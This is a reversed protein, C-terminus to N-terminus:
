WTAKVSGDWKGTPGKYPIGRKINHKLKRYTIAHTPCYNYCRLCLICNGCTLVEGNKEYINGSPCNSYCFGCNTCKEKDIGMDNRLKSFGKRFPVRQIKGAFISLSNFGRLSKDVRLISDAFKQSKRKAAEFTQGLKDADNTFPLPILSVCVNNPMNFHESWKIDFGKSALFQAGAHSGDGSWKWQTCYVFTPKSTIAALDILFEKMNQPLDSGYIPYGFGIIDSQSIASDAMSVTLNEISVASVDHGYETFYEVIKKTIWSTNGTGSFYFISIRM